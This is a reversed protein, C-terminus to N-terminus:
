ELGINSKSIVKDGRLMVVAKSGEAKGTFTYILVSSESDKDGSESQLEGSTALIKKVDEYTMGDEIQNFQELTIHQQQGMMEDANRMTNFGILTIVM